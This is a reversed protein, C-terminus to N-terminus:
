LNAGRKHAERQLEAIRKEAAEIREDAEEAATTLHELVERIANMAEQDKIIQACLQSCTMALAELAVSTDPKTGSYLARITDAVEDETLM